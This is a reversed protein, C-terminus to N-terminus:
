KKIIRRIPHRSTHMINYLEITNKHVEYVIIYPFRNLKVQRSRKLRKAFGLPNQIIFHVTKELENVFEAGLGIQKDEYWNVIEFIQFYIQPHYFVSFSM